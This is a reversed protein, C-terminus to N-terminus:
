VGWGGICRNGRTEIVVVRGGPKVHEEVTVKPANAAYAADRKALREARWAHPDHRAKWAASGIVEVVPMGDLTGHRRKYELCRVNCARCCYTRRHNGFVVKFKGGCSPCIAYEDSM